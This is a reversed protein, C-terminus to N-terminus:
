EEELKDKLEEPKTTPFLAEFVERLKGITQKSFLGVLGCIAAVGYENVADTSSNWNLVGGRLALYVIIALPIGIFPRLIYWLTWRSTFKKNGVYAIISTMCYILSGLVGMIAALLILRMEKSVIINLFCIKIKTGPDTIETNLIRILSCISFLSLALLYLSIIVISIVKVREENFFAKLSTM